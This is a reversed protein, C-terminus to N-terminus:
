CRKLGGVLLWAFAVGGKAFSETFGSSIDYGVSWYARGRGGAMAALLLSVTCIRVGLLLATLTADARCASVVKVGLVKSDQRTTLLVAFSSATDPLADRVPRRRRVTFQDIRGAQEMSQSLPTM